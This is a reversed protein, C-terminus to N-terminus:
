NLNYLLLFDQKLEYKEFIQTSILGYIILNFLQSGTFKEM